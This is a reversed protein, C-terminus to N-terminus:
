TPSSLSQCGDVADSVANAVHTASMARKHAAFARSAADKVIWSAAVAAHHPCSDGSAKAWAACAAAVGALVDGQGGCRRLAPDPHSVLTAPTQSSGILDCLGKRLITADGCMASLRTIQDSSEDHTPDPVPDEGLLANCMRKFEIANPTLITWEASLPQLEPATATDAFIFLADGDLVLPISSQHLLHVVTDLNAADRGLGSGVALSHLNGTELISAAVGAGNGPTGPELSPLVILEPSYCKIPIAADPECFVTALDAGARLISIAAFFPAGTYEKCGGVVGIRGCSGKHDEPTYQPIARKYFSHLISRFGTSGAASRNM